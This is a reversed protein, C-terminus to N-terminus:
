NRHGSPRPGGGARCLIFDGCKFEQLNRKGHGFGKPSPVPLCRNTCMTRRAPGSLALVAASRLHGMKVRWAGAPPGRVRVPWVLIVLSGTQAFRSLGRNLRKGTATSIGPGALHPHYLELRKVKLARLFHERCGFTWGLKGAWNM